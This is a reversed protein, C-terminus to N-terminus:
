AGWGGRVRARVRPHLPLDGWHQRPYSALPLPAVTCSHPLPPPPPCVRVGVLGNIAPGQTAGEAHTPMVRPAHPSRLRTGRSGGGGWWYFITAPARAGM